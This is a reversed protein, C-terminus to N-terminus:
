GSVYSNNQVTRGYFAASGQQEAYAWQVATSGKSTGAIARSNSFSVSKVSSFIGSSLEQTKDMAAKRKHRNLSLSLIWSCRLQSQFVEV